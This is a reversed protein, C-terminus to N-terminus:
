ANRSESNTAHRPLFKVENEAFHLTKIAWLVCTVGVITYITSPMLHFFQPPFLADPNFDTAGRSLAFYPHLFFVLDEEGRGTVYPALSAPLVALVLLLLGLVLGLALLSRKVRASILITVGCVMFGFSGILILALGATYIPALPDPDSLFGGTLARNRAGAALSALLPFLCCFLAILLILGTGALKGIVIQAHTVPAAILVDWSRREREGSIGAYLSLAPILTNLLLLIYLSAIAPMAYQMSLVSLLILGLVILGMLIGNAIGNPGRTSFRRRVRQVEILMPNELLLERVADAFRSTM